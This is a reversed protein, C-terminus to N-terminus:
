AIDLAIRQAGPEHLSGLLPSPATRPVTDPSDAEHRQALPGDFSRTLPHRPHIGRLGIRLQSGNALAYRLTLREATGTPRFLHHRQPRETRRHPKPSSRLFFQHSITGSVKEPEGVLSWNEPRVQNHVAYWLLDELLRVNTSGLGKLVVNM